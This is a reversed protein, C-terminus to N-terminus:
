SETKDEVWFLNPKIDGNPRVSIIKEEHLKQLAKEAGERVGINFSYYGCLSVVVCLLFYEM